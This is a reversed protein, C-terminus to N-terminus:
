EVVCSLAFCVLTPSVRGKIQDRTNKNVKVKHTCINAQINYLYLHEMHTQQWQPHKTGQFRLDPWNHAAMYPSPVLDLDEALIALVSLRQAM